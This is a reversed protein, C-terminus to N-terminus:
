PGICPGLWVMVDAASGSAAGVSEIVGNKIAVPAQQSQALAMFRKFVTELVGIGDAGALGRWGAHAAAVTNGQRNTLLVPLCDAVMITCALRSATTACADACPHPPLDGHLDLVKTGHVQQLFVAQTGP